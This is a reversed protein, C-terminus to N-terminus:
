RLGAPTKLSPFRRPASVSPVAKMDFLLMWAVNPLMLVVPVLAGSKLALKM